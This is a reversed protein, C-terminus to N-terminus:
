DALKLLNHLFDDDSILLTLYSNMLLLIDINEDLIM